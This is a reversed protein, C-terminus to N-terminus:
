IPEVSELLYKKHFHNLYCANKAYKYKITENYGTNVSIYRDQACIIGKASIEFNDLHGHNLAPPEHIAHMVFQHFDHEVM